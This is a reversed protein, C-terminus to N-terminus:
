DSFSFGKLGLEKARRVLRERTGTEDPARKEFEKAIRDREALYEDFEVKNELYVALAAHVDAESLSPLRESIEEPSAGDRVHALFVDLTIHSNAVRWAKDWFRLGFPKEGEAPETDKRVYYAVAM